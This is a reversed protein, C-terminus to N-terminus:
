NKKFRNSSLLTPHPPLSFLNEVSQMQSHTSKKKFISNYIKHFFSITNAGAQNQQRSKMIMGGGGGGGGGRSDISDTTYANLQDGRRKFFKRSLTNSKFSLFGGNTRESIPKANNVGNKNTQVLDHIHADSYNRTHKKRDMFSTEQENNALAAAELERELSESLRIQKLIGALLDDVKDNIAVSTEM